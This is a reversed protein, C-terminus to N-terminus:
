REGKYGDRMLQKMKRQHARLRGLITGAIGDLIGKYMEPSERQLSAMDNPVMTNRNTGDPAGGSVAQAQINAVEADANVPANQPVANSPEAM